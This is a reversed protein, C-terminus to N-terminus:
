YCSPYTSTFICCVVRSLETGIRVCSVCIQWFCHHPFCRLNTGRLVCLTAIAVKQRVTCEMMISFNACGSVSNMFTCNQQPKQAYDQSNKSKLNGNCHKCVLKLGSKSLSPPSGNTSIHCHIALFFVKFVKTGIVDLFEAEPSQPPACGGGKVVDVM